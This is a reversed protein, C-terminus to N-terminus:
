LAGARVAKRRAKELHALTAADYKGIEALAMQVLDKRGAELWGLMLRFSMVNRAPERFMASQLETLQRLVRAVPNMCLRFVLSGSETVLARVMALDAETLESLTAGADVKKEYARLARHLAGFDVDDIREGLREFLAGALQRRVLLLDAVADLFRPGAQAALADALLDLGATDLFNAVTHGSGQRVTLLNKSQLQHLASRVTARTVGMRQALEREPPLREGPAFEGSVIAKQLASACASVASEIHVPQIMSLQYSWNDLGM